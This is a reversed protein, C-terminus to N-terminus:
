AAAAKEKSLTEVPTGWRFHAPDVTENGSGYRGTVLCPQERIWKIFKPDRLPEERQRLTAHPNLSTM